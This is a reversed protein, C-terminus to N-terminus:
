DLQVQSRKELTPWNLKKVANTVFEEENTYTRTVFREARRQVQKLRSKQYVDKRIGYLVVM